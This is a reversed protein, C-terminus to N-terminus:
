NIPQNVIRRFHDYISRDGRVRLESDDGRRWLWAVLAGAPGDVVADPDMGPDDVVEIDDEDYEVGEPDTGRFRGLQVWVAEDTDTCDVRLYHPLGSFVGWSPTGGYMVDLAEDVGDSALVPDLPTVEGLTLEADLRHILAEHAQRRLVFGVTKDRTSWTWAYEKPDADRLAALMAASARDFRDLMEAYISPREPDTYSDPGADPRGGVMAGWYDQVEVLHWLLDAAKWDPCSPVQAAPDAAALVERFRSSESEIHRLYDDSPLRPM